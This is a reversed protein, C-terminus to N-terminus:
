RQGGRVWTAVDVLLDAVLEADRGSLERCDDLQLQLWGGSALRVQLDGRLMPTKVLEVRTNEGPALDAINM